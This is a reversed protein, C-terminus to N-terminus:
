TQAAFTLTANTLGTSDISAVLINHEVQAARPILPSVALSLSQITAAPLPASEARSVSAPLAVALGLPLLIRPLHKQTHMGVM